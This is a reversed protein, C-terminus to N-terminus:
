LEKKAMEEAFIRRIRDDLEKDDHKANMQVTDNEGIVYANSPDDRDVLAVDYGCANAMRLLNELIIRNGSKLQMSLNSQGTGLRTAVEGLTMKRSKAAAKVADQVKM